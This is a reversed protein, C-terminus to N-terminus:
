LLEVFTSPWGHTMILPIGNGDAAREYIFHIHVGDLEARFHHFVNLAREQARWDFEAAWYALVERLYELNTGQEWTIGPIQDPWRTNHIRTRLDALVEEEIHISFPAVRPSPKQQIM